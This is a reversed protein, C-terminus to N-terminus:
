RRVYLPEASGLVRRRIYRSLSAPTALDVRRGLIDSLERQIAAFRLGVRAGTKFEVLVDVDSDDGFDDRVVSGFLSLKEIGHRECLATVRAMDPALKATISM